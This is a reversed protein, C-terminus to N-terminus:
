CGYVQKAKGRTQGGIVGDVKIKYFGQFGKVGPRTGDKDIKSVDWGLNTLRAQMGDMRALPRLKGIHLKTSAGNITLTADTADLPLSVVIQDGDKNLAGSKSSRGVKLTVRIPGFANVYRAIRTFRIILKNKPSSVVLKHLKATFTSEGRVDVPPIWIRDDPVLLNPDRRARLSANKAHNWLTKWSYHGKAAAISGIWEGEKEVTHYPM